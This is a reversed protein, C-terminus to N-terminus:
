DERLAAEPALRGQEPLLRALRVLQPDDPAAFLGLALNEQASVLDGLAAAGLTHFFALRALRLALEPPQPRKPFTAALPRFWAVHAQGAARADNATVGDALVRQFWAEASLTGYVQSPVEESLELLVPREASLSQLPMLALRGSLVQERLLARLEPHENVAQDVAGPFHAFNLPVLTVDARLQEEAEAGLHRFSTGADYTLVVARSPLNRRTVDDLIDPAKFAALGRGESTLFAFLMVAVLLRAPARKQWEASRPSAVRELLLGLGCSALAILGLACPILAGWLDPLLRPRILLSVSAFPVAVVILWLVCFRRLASARLSFWLAVLALSLLAFVLTSHGGGLGAWLKAGTGTVPAYAPGWWPDENLTWYLNSLSSADGFNIAPHQSARIPVYAYASFGLIPFAVHGMLGIFGRRAFVRGLTPAAPALMLLAFVHHNAFSLGQVFAAFYLTRTDDTPESLEFRVLADLVILSLMFQLAFVNPRVAQQWFLPTHGLFWAAALALPAARGPERVGAGLLSFFVARAFLGLAVAACVAASISVRFSLPGIPLQAFFAAVLTSLPAGPPHTVGLDGAAAIYAGEEYLGGHASATALYFALPVGGALWALWSPASLSVRSSLASLPRM